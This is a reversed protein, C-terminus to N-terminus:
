VQKAPALCNFRVTLSQALLEAQHHLSPFESLLQHLVEPQTAIQICSIAKENLRCDVQQFLSVATLAWLQGKQLLLYIMYARLFFHPDVTENIVTQEAFEIAENM